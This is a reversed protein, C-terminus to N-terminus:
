NGKDPGPSKELFTSHMRGRQWDYLLQRSFRIIDPKGGKKLVHRKLAVKELFELPKEVKLGYYKEFLEPYKKVILMAYYEPEQVHQPNYAGIIIQKLLDKEQYQLVGPTDILKLKGKASVFQIGRTHGSQSSVSASKKGKLLNIVSSKGVNPYGLVGVICSKGRSLEMIKNFLMTGGYKKKASVFVCPEFHEKLSEPDKVLDCKNIVYLLKRAKQEIEKNRTMEPFRADIVLLVIDSDRLVKNVLKWFNVM